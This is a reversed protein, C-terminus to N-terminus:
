PQLYDVQGAVGSAVLTIQGGEAVVSSGPGGTIDIDGGVIFHSGGPALQLTSREISIGGSTARLFGIAEPATVSLSSATPDTASFVADDSFRLEDASSVHFSGRVDLTANRGFLVGAPNIFYFDAGPIQSRLAGDIVSRDGGTVRGIVNRITSPGTFAASEGTSISFREFSHFLNGGVQTGLEAGLKRDPGILDVGPGVSGDTVVEALAAPGRALLITSFWGLLLRRM